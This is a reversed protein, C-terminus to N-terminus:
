YEERQHLTTTSFRSNQTAPIQVLGRQQPIELSTVVIFVNIHTL